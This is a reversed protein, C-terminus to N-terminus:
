AAVDAVLGTRVAWAAVETRSGMDLKALVNSVHVSVTKPSIFLTSAIEGNTRGRAIERVVEVERPTLGGQEPAVDDERRETLQAQLARARDLRPGPWGALRDIASALLGLAEEDRDDAHAARAVAVELSAYEAPLAGVEPVALAALAGEVDGTLACRWAGLEGASSGALEPPALARDILEILEATPLGAAVLDDLVDLVAAAIAAPTRHKAVKGTGRDGVSWLDAIARRVPALDGSRAALVVRCRWLADKWEAPDTESLLAEAEAEDGAELALYAASARREVGFAVPGLRSVLARARALEGEFVAAEFLKGDLWGAMSEHGSRDTQAQLRRLLARREESSLQALGLLNFLGRAALLHLDELEAQEVTALLLDRGSRDGLCLLASGREIRAQLVVEDLHLGEAREEAREAWTIAAPFSGNLMHHQAIAAASRAWAEPSLDPLSSELEAVHDLEAADGAEWCLRVLWRVAAAREDADGSVSAVSAWRRCHRMADEGLGVLWAANTAVALLGPHDPEEQLGDEALRLAQYTSGEDLAQQAGRCSHAVLEAVRGAAAAHRAVAAPDVEGATLLTDVAASHLERVERSLMGERVAEALLAHRLEFLDPATETVLQADSLSRLARVLRGDDFGLVAGLVPWSADPGLVAMAEVTRREDDGADLLSARLADALTWPLPAQPDALQDTARLLEEVFLPSGGTRDYLARVARPDTERGIIADAMEKVEGPSLPALRVHVVRERRELRHLLEATPRLRSLAEPRYTLVLTWDGIADVTFRDLVDLSAADAWHADDVVVLARGECRCALAAVAGSPTDLAEDPGLLSGVVDLPRDISTRTARAVLVEVGDDVDDLLARVFRSKGIGASGGVVIVSPGGAAMAARASALEEIRGIM